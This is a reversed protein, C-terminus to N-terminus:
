SDFTRCRNGRIEYAMSFSLSIQREWASTPNVGAETFGNTATLSQKRFCQRTRSLWDGFSFGCRPVEQKSGQSDMGRRRQRYKSIQNRILKFNNKWVDYLVRSIVPFAKLRMSKGRMHGASCLYRFKRDCNSSWAWRGLVRSSSVRRMTRVQLNWRSM